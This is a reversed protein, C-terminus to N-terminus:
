EEVKLIPEHVGQVWMMNDGYKYQGEYTKQNSLVSKIQSAGFRKNSRSRCGEDSLLDAIDQLTLGSERLEFIRKVMEAEDDRVVLQSNEVRYGYPARGGAYGGSKAKMSRGASTRKAINTREQEAIFMTLSQLVGAFAGMSGFDEQVSLLDINKKQLVFKYYFYLNIDRALRDSKAVIVTEIPPVNDDEGFLIKDLEKREEVVGSVGGDIYWKTLTYDNRICYNMIDFKQAEIGYKDETTQGATSVRIYGVANKLTM